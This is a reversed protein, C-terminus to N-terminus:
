RAEKDGKFGEGDDAMIGKKLSGSPM